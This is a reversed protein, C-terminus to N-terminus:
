APISEVDLPKEETSIEATMSKFFDEDDATMSALLENARKQLFANDRLKQYHEFFVPFSANKYKPDKKVVKFEKKAQARMLKRDVRM